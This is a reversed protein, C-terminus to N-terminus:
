FSHKKNKILRYFCSAFKTPEGKELSLCVFVCLESLPVLTIVFFCFVFLTLSLRKQSSAWTHRDLSSTVRMM